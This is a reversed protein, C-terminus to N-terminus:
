MGKPLPIGMKQARERNRKQVTKQKEGKQRTVAAPKQRDFPLARPNWSRAVDWKKRCEIGEPYYFVQEPQRGARYDGTDWRGNGNDDAILRVYYTAEPLYFFQANGDATRVEKVVQDSSNLLQVVAPRGAFGEVTLALSSYADNGNVKFGRKFPASALGYIDTFAASDMELSYEVDPRWEGLLTFARRHLLPLTDAQAAVLRCRSRYWLSDHKAYLHIAATDIRELPTRSVIGINCDPAFDAPINVAADLPAPPMISDAPQGRRRKKDQAKLWEDHQKKLAKMRRSYPQKSLLTLTDTQLVLRGTSDTQHYQMEVALTDRNVLATDRLWYLVTDNHLSPETIFAGDANFNLGKIRPLETDGYSFVLSFCNAEKREGKIFFRDTLTETFARLVINDPMFRRYPVRKIDSIHLSDAWLTDQRVADTVYPKVSDNSFAICESKQSFRYDGDADALACVRYTGPAVGRIIFHGRSDARAVRVMPTRLFTSDAFDTYLGVLIGKVPELNDAAVVNGEVQLTDIASGTSFSYTYNGMPNGENNDSIADSFDVTYTTNAKLSDNLKIDIRKGAAKIEPQELQPPSVVVKETANDLKIYENFFISVKTQTCGTARDAPRAATVRPPTEDYWGGDPQGMRACAAALLALLFLLATSSYPHKM